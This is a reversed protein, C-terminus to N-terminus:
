RMFGGCVKDHEAKEAPFTKHKRHYRLSARILIYWKILSDSDGVEESITSKNPGKVFEEPVESYRMCMVTGNNECFNRAEAETVCDEALGREKRLEGLLELFLLFDKNAKDKYLKQLALYSETDATLDPIKGNLPLESYKAYFRKLTAAMLWFKDKMAKDECKADELVSKLPEKLENTVFCQPAAAVAEQFNEESFFDRSMEKILKNFESKEKFNEPLKGEHKEKWIEKAKILVIPFPTHKHHLDDIKELDFGKAFELLEPFPRSLRLDSVVQEIPRSDIITHEPSYMRIYGLLGFCSSLILPTRQAACVKGLSIMEEESLDCAIVLTYSILKSSDKIFTDVTAGHMASAKSDPNLEALLKATVEARPKGVSEATVFFNNGHDAPVVLADDAVTFAGIGPLILNKLAETGIPNAKILLIHSEALRRQGDAGWLRLQRDYKDDTAM